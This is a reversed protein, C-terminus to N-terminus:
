SLLTTVFYFFIVLSLTFRISSAGLTTSPSGEFRWFCEELRQLFESSTLWQDICDNGRVDFSELTEFNRFFTREIKAVQNNQVFLTRLRPMLGFSGTRLVTLNGHSLEVVELNQLNNFALSQIESLFRNNTIQIWQLSPLNDFTRTEIRTIRNFNLAIFSVNQLPHFLLPNIREIGNGDLILLNLRNLPRFTEPHFDGIMNSIIHLNRLNSLGVFAAENINEIGSRELTLSSLQGCAEFIRGPITQIRNNDFRIHLLQGCNRWPQHLETVNANEFNVRTLNRFRDFIHIPIFNLVSRLTIIARVDDDTRNGLHSGSITFFDGPNLFRADELRCSYGDDPRDHFHCNAAKGCYIFTLFVIAALLAKM